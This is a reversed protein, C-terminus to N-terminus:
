RSSPVELMLGLSSGMDVRIWSAGKRQLYPKSLIVLMKLLFTYEGSAGLRARPTQHGALSVM